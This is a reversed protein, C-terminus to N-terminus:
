TETKGLNDGSCGAESERRQRSVVAFAFAAMAAAALLKNLM